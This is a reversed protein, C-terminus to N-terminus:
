KEKPPPKTGGGVAQTQADSEKELIKDFGLASEKPPPKTGGGVAQTTANSSDIKISM